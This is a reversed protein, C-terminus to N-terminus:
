ALVCRERGDSKLPKLRSDSVDSWGGGAWAGLESLEAEWESSLQKLARQPAKKAWSKRITFLDLNTTQWLAIFEDRKTFSASSSSSHHELVAELFSSMFRIATPSLELEVDRPGRRSRRDKSLTHQTLLAVYIAHNWRVADHYRQFQHVPDLRYYWAARAVKEDGCGGQKDGRGREEGKNELDLPRNELDTELYEDVRARNELFWALNIDRPINLLQKALAKNATKRRWFQVSSKMILQPQNPNNQRGHRTGGVHTDLPNNPGNSDVSATDTDIDMSDIVPAHSEIERLSTARSAPPTSTPTGPPTGFPTVTPSNYSSGPASCVPSSCPNGYSTFDESTPFRDKKEIEVEQPTPPLPKRICAQTALCPYYPKETPAEPPAHDCVDNECYLGKACGVTTGMTARDSDTLPWSIPPPSRGWASLAAPTSFDDVTSITSSLSLSNPTRPQNELEASLRKITHLVLKDTIPDQSQSAFTFYSNNLSTDTHTNARSEWDIDKSIMPETERPPVPFGLDMRDGNVSVVPM